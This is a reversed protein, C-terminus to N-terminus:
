NRNRFLVKDWFTRKKKILTDKPLTTTNKNDKILNELDITGGNKVKIKDNQIHYVTINQPPCKPIEPCVQLSTAVQWAILAGLIFGIIAGINKGLFALFMM